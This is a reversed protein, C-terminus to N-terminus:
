IAKRIWYARRRQRESYPPLLQNLEEQSQLWTTSGALFVFDRYGSLAWPGALAFLVEGDLYLGRDDMNMSGITLYLASRGHRNPLQDFSQVFPRVVRM